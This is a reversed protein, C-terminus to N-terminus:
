KRLFSLQTLRTGQINYRRVRRRHKRHQFRRRRHSRGRHVVRFSATVDRRNRYGIQSIDPVGCRPRFLPLFNYYVNLLKCYFM